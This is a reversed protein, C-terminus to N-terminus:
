WSRRSSSIRSSMSVKSRAPRTSSVSRAARSSAQNERCKSVWSARSWLANPVCGCQAPLVGRRGLDSLLPHVQHHLRDNGRGGANGHEGGAGREGAIGGGALDHELLADGAVRDAFPGLVLDARREIREVPALRAGDVAVAIRAGVLAGAEGPVLRGELVVDLVRLGLDGAGLHHEDPQPALGLGVVQPGIELLEAGVALLLSSRVKAGRRPPLLAALAAGIMNFRETM